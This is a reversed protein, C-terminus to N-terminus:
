PTVKVRKLSWRLYALLKWVSVGESTKVALEGRLPRPSMKFNVHGLSFDDKQGWM